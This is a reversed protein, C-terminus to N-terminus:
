FYNNQTKNLCLETLNTSGRVDAATGFQVLVIEYTVITGALTLLVMRTVPFFNLGTLAVNDTTIQELFRNV